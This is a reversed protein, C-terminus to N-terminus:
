LIAFTLFKLTSSEGVQSAATKFYIDDWSTGNYVKYTANKTAM